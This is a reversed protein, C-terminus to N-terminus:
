VSGVASAGKRRVAIIIGAAILRFPLLLDGVLGGPPVSCAGLLALM